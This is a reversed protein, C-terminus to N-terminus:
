GETISSVDVVYLQRTRDEHASDICVRTGDRNWRPHLDCRVPGSLEPSLYFEGVEVRLDDGPRYLMLTQMRDSDPYTDNLIWERDPSYSCHGDRPLVDRGMPEIAGSDIDFLYFADGSEPTTSWALITRDDRWDFHSVMGTDQILRIDSGDPRAVYMRTQWRSGPIEWRHLFIFFDGSPNFQLHNFWHHMGSSFREDPENAAAWAIPIILRDEGSALDMAYIGADEPAPDDPFAEPIANYGYGPRLRNLRDFDLTVAKTGSADVAYIPRPLTRSSGAHVDRITAVYRGDEVGNYIIERDPASGLWQLMTGQQWSWAATRDLPIFRDGEELDVMGVTLEDGPEPQHDCYGIEMGLLYRGTADWPCKDYYGFFHAKPGSTVARVPAEARVVEARAARHPLILGSGALAAGSFQRLFTRRTTM